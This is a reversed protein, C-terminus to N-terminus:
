VSRGGGGRPFIRKLAKSSFHFNNEIILSNVKFHKLPVLAKREPVDIHLGLVHMVDVGLIHEFNEGYIAWTYVKRKGVELLVYTAYAKVSRGDALGVDVVGRRELGLKGALGAPIACGAAGTDVLFDCKASREPENPNSVKVRVYVFDKGDVHRVHFRKIRM